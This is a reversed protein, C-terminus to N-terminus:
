MAPITKTAMQLATSFNLKNIGMSTLASRIKGYREVGAQQVKYDASITFAFYIDTRLQKVTTRKIRVEM